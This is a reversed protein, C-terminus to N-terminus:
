EAKRSRAAWPALATVDHGREWLGIVSPHKRPTGKVKLEFVSCSPDPSKRPLNELQLNLGDQAWQVKHRSGLIRASVVQNALGYMSFERGPWYPAHVFLKNDKVTTRGVTRVDLIGPKVGYVADGNVKLWRGTEELIRRFRMPFTGQARPGVNLLLNAGASAAGSLLNVVEQRSKWLRDGKHWGWWSDMTTRCTERSREVGGEGAGTQEFTSFYGRARKAYNGVPSVNGDGGGHLRDNIMVHPQLARIMRDLKESQWRAADHPWGGDFWLVDVRGYNSCLEKVQGHTYELFRAFGKPDKDPGLFYEPWSWDALSYYLGVRLGQKRFARVCAAVLDRGAATRPASYDTLKSDFLCFGDHHKTTLVAYRAGGQRAMKAWEDADFKSPRFRKALRRYVAPDLRERFLVQEGRGLLAYLGWHIFLGLGAQTYWAFPDTKLEAM